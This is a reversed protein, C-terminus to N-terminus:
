HIKTNTLAFLDKSHEGEIKFKRGVRGLLSLKSQLLMHWQKDYVYAFVVTCFCQVVLRAYM